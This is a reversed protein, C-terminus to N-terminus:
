LTIVSDLKSRKERDGPFVMATIAVVPVDKDIAKIREFVEFGM